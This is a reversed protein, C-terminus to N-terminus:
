FPIVSPTGIGLQIVFTTAKLGGLQLATNTRPDPNTLCQPLQTCTVDIIGIRGTQGHPPNVPTGGAMFAQLFFPKGLKHSIGAILTPIRQPYPDNPLENQLRSPQVFLTTKDSAFYRVDLLQFIQAHNDQNLGATHVLWQPGLTFAAFLKPSNALPITVFVSKNQATRLHLRESTLTDPNYVEFIDDSGGISATRAVYQPTIVIPLVGGIYIMRSLGLTIIRNRVTADQQATQLNAPCNPVKGGVLGGLVNCNQRGPGLLPGIVPIAGNAVYSPVIGTDFGIPYESLTYFGAQLRTYKDPGYFIAGDVGGPLSNRHFGIDGDPFASSIDLTYNFGPSSPHQIGPRPTEFGGWPPTTAAPKAQATQAAPAAAAAAAAKAAKRANMADRLMTGANGTVSSAAPDVAQGASPRTLSLTLAGALVAVAALPKLNMTHGEYLPRRPRCKDEAKERVTRM